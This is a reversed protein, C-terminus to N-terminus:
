RTAAARRTLARSVVYLFWFVPLFILYASGTHWFGMALELGGYVGMLYIAAVRVGNALLALPVVLAVLALRHAVRRLTIWAFILTYMSLTVLMNMGSCTENVIVYFDRSYITHANWYAVGYGALNLLDHAISASLEQLPVDLPRLFHEWPLAFWAFLVPMSLAVARQWGYAGWIWAAVAPPLVIASIMLAEWRERALVLGVLHVAVLGLLVWEAGRREPRPRRWEPRRRALWALAICIPVTLLGAAVGGLVRGLWTEVVFFPVPLFALAGVVAAAVAYRRSWRRGGRREGAMTPDGPDM